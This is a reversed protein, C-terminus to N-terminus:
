WFHTNYKCPNKFEEPYCIGSVHDGRSWSIGEDSCVSLSLQNRCALMLVCHKSRRNYHYFPCQLGPYYTLNTNRINCKNQCEAVDKAVEASKMMCHQDNKHNCYVKMSKQECKYNSTHHTKPDVKPCYKWNFRQRVMCITGQVYWECPQYGWQARGTVPNYVMALCTKQLDKIAPSTQNHLFNKYLSHDKGTGLGLPRTIYFSMHLNEDHWPARAAEIEREIWEQQRESSIQVLGVRSGYEKYSMADSHAICAELSEDFTLKSDDDNHERLDFLYCHNDYTKWGVPCELLLNNM